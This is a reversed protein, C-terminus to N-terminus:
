ICFTKAQQYWTQCLKQIVATERGSLNNAKELSKAHIKEAYSQKYALDIFEYIAPLLETKRKVLEDYDVVLVNGAGLSPRLELLQAIKRNYIMAARKVRSFGQRGLLRYQWQEVGTLSPAVFNCFMNDLAQSPWNYLLSYITSYPNRLVWVMKYGGVHEYYERYHQDLYTTQFCYRGRPTHDVLGALILAADLEDDAGFYYCVMGESQTIIRSLMTTGSRQCGTVLVSDPFKDLEKLLHCGEGSVLQRFRRWTM